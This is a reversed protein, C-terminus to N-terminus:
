NDFRFLGHEREMVALLHSMEGPDIVGNGDYDISNFMDNVLFEPPEHGIASAIIRSVDDRSLYGKADPDLDSFTYNDHILEYWREKSSHRIVLDLAPIFDDAEPMMGEDKLRNGVEMLPKIKCFGNLLNRPLAVDLVDDQSGTHFDYHEYQLDVQIYSRREVPNEPDEDEVGEVPCRRSYEIASQLEWRKMPVVVIKTPFPLEQRIQAYTLAPTEYATNGKIVAGNLIAVDTELEEKICTCIVGGLTTQQKRTGKSSLPVGPPLLSHAHLVDENELAVLISEHHDIINQVVMSPNLPRLDVLDYEIEGVCVQRNKGNDDEQVDFYIDVLSVGNADMGSKLIRVFADDDGGPHDIKVDFPTHEHGGLIVGSGPQVTLMHRALDQDRHISQHTLPLLWDAQSKEVVLRNYSETFSETVDGIPVGRFTADRFMAREDSMLGLLGVRVRGCPTTVVDHRRLENTMWEWDQGDAPTSTYGINTNLVVTEPIEPFDADAFTPAEASTRIEQLKALRKRLKPLKLDAEHNGLSVHSMGLARLTAVMGKGGDLASLPSPSLFDGALCVVDASPQLQKLFTQLRSLNALDYVDNISAIRLRPTRSPTSSFLRMMTSHNKRVYPVLWQSANIELTSSVLVRLFFEADGSGRPYRSSGETPSVFENQATELSLSSYSTYDYEGKENDEPAKPHSRLATYTAPCGWAFTGHGRSFKKQPLTLM